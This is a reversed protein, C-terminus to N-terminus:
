ESVEEVLVDAKRGFPGFKVESLLLLVSAGILLAALWALTKIDFVNLLHFAALPAIMGRVGTLFTHIAMYDAVHEPPAFKTVWLSWAVDGGANSIGFVIAGIILGTVDSSTFFALIGLAFGLNLIARLTFFNMRDFLRGWIPSVVLRAMNPAVGTLFAVEGVTLALGYRPNALYEVRMPLMMLNAFGMLMWAALTRSFLKDERMFRIGRFPHTGGAETLPRSPCHALCYSSAAFTLGFFVLLWQFQDINGSLAQGALESFLAAAGIRIMVTRSFLHGRSHEPYNEQYIQTLLPIAASSATLALVSGAIFIPLVPFAAMAWFCVAGFAALGAAAHAPRWGRKAVISVSLPTLMLGFSGAGAVLAKSTAGANFWRVAILLLFTTGATELIGSAVARWREYRYTLETDTRPLAEDLDQRRMSILNDNM